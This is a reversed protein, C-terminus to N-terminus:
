CESTNSPSDSYNFDILIRYNTKEVFHGCDTWEERPIGLCVYNSILTLRLHCADNNWDQFLDGNRM